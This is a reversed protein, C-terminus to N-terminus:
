FKQFIRDTTASNNLKYYKLTKKWQPDVENRANKIQTQYGSGLNLIKPLDLWHNSLYEVILIKLDEEM